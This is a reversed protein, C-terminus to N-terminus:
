AVLALPICRLVQGYVKPMSSESTSRRNRKPPLAGDDSGGEGAGLPALRLASAESGAGDADPLDKNADVTFYGRQQPPLFREENHLYLTSSHIGVFWLIIIYLSRRLPCLMRGAQPLAM